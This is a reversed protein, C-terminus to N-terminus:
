LWLNCTLLPKTNNKNLNLWSWQHDQHHSEHPRSRARWNYSLDCEGIYKLLWRAYTGAFFYRWLKAILWSQRTPKGRHEKVSRCNIFQKCKAARTPRGSFHTLVSKWPARDLIHLHVCCELFPVISFLCNKMKLEMCRSLWNLKACLDFKRRPVLCIILKSNGNWVTFFEM